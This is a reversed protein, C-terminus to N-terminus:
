EKEREQFPQHVIRIGPIFPPPEKALSLLTIRREHQRLQILTTALGPTTVATLVILTAGYQVRPVEKLLFREFNATVVSTVGALAQLLVALQQPSRGPPIRFPQDAHALCGNAVLGVKYGQQIGEDVLTAAVKILYELLEPYVGEWHRAFTSVNLCVMMVQGTTPQYVKVQLQGTRATAPWHIRRFSDEPRYERVGMPRSPDEFIRQRSKRDGFPDEAPFELQAFPVLSPFVTLYEHGALERRKEFIGFLDGSDLRAPGISFIGRNRLLLDYSRKAKEYWRLSFINTLYGRDQIYSPALIEEDVPGVGREWDDQIRLWSIPLIKRNEVEVQLDIHEDPFGRTYHFIRKYTVGQLSKGHWWWAFGIIVFIATTLTVLFPEKLVIGLIMLLIFIPLGRKTM